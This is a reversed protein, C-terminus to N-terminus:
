KDEIRIMFIDKFDLFTIDKGKKIALMNSKSDDELLNIAHQINETLKNSCLFKIYINYM